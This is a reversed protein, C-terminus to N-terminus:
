NEAKHIDSASSGATLDAENFSKSEPLQLHLSSTHDLQLRGSGVTYDMVHGGTTRDASIFHLHYGPVGIGVAYDPCRFGLITGAADASEHITQEAVAELLPKYPPTQRVVNRFKLMAFTGDLRVAYFLNPSSALRDLRAEFDAKAVPGAVTEELDPSFPIVAAYPTLADAPAETARGDGTMRYVKGDIIIMEGDLGNFTGIGFGGHELLDGVRVDGDYVGGMLASLLSTQYYEHRHEDHHLRNADSQHAALAAAFATETDKHGMNKHALDDHAM